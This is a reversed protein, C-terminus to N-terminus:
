RGKFKSGAKRHNPESAKSRSLSKRSQTALLAPCKKTIDLLAQAPSERYSMPSVGAISRFVKCFHSVDQFGHEYAAEKVSCNHEQLFQRARQILVWDFYVRPNLGTSNKFLPVLRSQSTGVTRCLEVTNFDKKGRGDMYEMARSMEWVPLHKRVIGNSPVITPTLCYRFLYVLMQIVLSQLMIEHGIDRTQWEKVLDEALQVPKGDRMKGLFLIDKEGNDHHLAIRKFLTLMAERSFYLTASDCPAQASGYLSQHVQGPNHVLMEGAELTQSEGDLVFQMRGGLCIILAYEGHTHPLLAVSTRFQSKSSAGLSRDDSWWRSVRSDLSKDM